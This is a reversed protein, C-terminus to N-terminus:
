SCIGRKLIDLIKEIGALIQDDDKDPSVLMDMREFLVTIMMGLADSAIDPRIEGSAKGAEIMQELFNNSMDGFAEVISDRVAPDESMMQRWLKHYRVDRRAFQLGMLAAKRFQVFFSTPSAPIKDSVAPRSLADTGTGASIVEMKEMGVRHLVSLYLDLKDYFRYYFSGKNLGATRIISNLSAERFSNVAFCDLAASYLASSAILPNETGEQMWKMRSATKNM